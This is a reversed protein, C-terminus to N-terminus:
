SRGNDRIPGFLGVVYLALSAALVVAWSNLSPLPVLGATIWDPSSVTATAATGPGRPMSLVVALAAALGGLATALAPWGRAPSRNDAATPAAVAPTVYAVEIQAIRAMINTAMDPPPAPRPLASLEVTLATAADLAPGCTQCNRAHQWAADLHAQPYDAFPGADILGLVHTCTM